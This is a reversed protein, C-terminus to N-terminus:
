ARNRTSIPRRPIVSLARNEPPLAGIRAPSASSNRGILATLIGRVANYLRETSGAM